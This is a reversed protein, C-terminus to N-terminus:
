LAEFSLSSLNFTIFHELKSGPSFGLTITESYGVATIVVAYVVSFALVTPASLM